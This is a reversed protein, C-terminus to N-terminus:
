SFHLSIKSRAKLPRSQLRRLNALKPDKPCRMVVFLPRMNIVLVPICFQQHDKMKGGFHDSNNTNQAPGDLNLIVWSGKPQFYEGEM